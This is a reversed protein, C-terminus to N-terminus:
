AGAAAWLALWYLYLTALVLGILAAGVLWLIVLVAPVPLELFKEYARSVTRKDNPIRLPV